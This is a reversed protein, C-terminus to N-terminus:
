NYRDNTENDKTKEGSPSLASQEKEPRGSETTQTYSSKLPKMLEDLDLYDNEFSLLNIFSSQKLGITTIPLLKSYGLTAMEKFTEYMEKSNFITVKPLFIEYQFKSSDVLTKFKNEYWHKLQDLVIFMLSEDTKISSSLGISGADKGTGFLMRSSGLTDFINNNAREIDNKISNKGDNLNVSDIEFPSTVIEIDKRNIMKNLNDHLELIHAFDFTLDNDKGLPLKQTIIQYLDKESKLKDIEKYEHLDILDPFVSALLPMGGTNLTICKANVPNLLVWKDKSKGSHYELYMSLFEDPFMKFISIKDEVKRYTDFFTLDFEVANVGDVKYNSRCFEYPLQYNIIRGDIEQEYGYFAGETLAVFTQYRANEEFYSNDVYDLIVKFNDSFPKKQRLKDDNVKPIILYSYLLLNTLHEIQRLYQGSTKFFYLSAKRLASVNGSDLYEEMQTKTYKRVSHNTKYNISYISESLKSFQIPTPLKKIEAESM